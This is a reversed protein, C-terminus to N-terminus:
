KKWWSRPTIPTLLDHTDAEADVTITWTGEPDTVRATLPRGFHRAWAALHHRAQTRGATTSTVTLTRTIGAITITLRHDPTIHVSAPPWTHM